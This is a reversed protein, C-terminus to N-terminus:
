SKPAAARIAPLAALLAEYTDDGKHLGAYTVYAALVHATFNDALGLEIPLEQLLALTGGHAIKSRGDNYLTNVVQKLTRNGSAIVDDDAKGLAARALELIGKAKGGKALVDLAIGFKVLSIFENRERRAQGFWYMAEVWRHMLEPCNGAQQVSVFAALADGIAGRLTETDSLLGAQAGPPGGLRPLDLSISFSIDQGERQHLEHTLHAAREHGPGRLNRAASIPMSLGLSDLAVLASVTACAFSRSRERGDVAVAIIWECSGIAKALDDVFTHRQRRRLLARALWSAPRMRLMETTFWQGLSHLTRQFFNPRHTWRRLLEAKWSLPSQAVREVEVLWNVRRLFAVPGVRFSQVDDQEFVRAPFYFHDRDLRTQLRADLNQV